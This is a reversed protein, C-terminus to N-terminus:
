GAEDGSQECQSPRMVLLSRRAVTHVVQQWSTSLGYFFVVFALRLVGPTFLNANVKGLGLATPFLVRTRRAADFPYNQATSGMLCRSGQEYIHM